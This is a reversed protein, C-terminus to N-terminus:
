KPQFKLEPSTIEKYGAPIDFSKPDVNDEKVSVLTTAVKKGNMVIETKMPMGPFDKIDPLLGKGMASLSSSQFKDLQALIGPYNPFDKAIWYTATLTGLGATFIECDYEGIKEKKGTPQLKAPEPGGRFKQLQEMMAKTQEPSMKLYTRGTHMLTIMEGTAGNTIMSVTSNLNTRARDGKIKITQDGSQGGGEVKQEIVLDAPALATAALLGIVAALFTKM